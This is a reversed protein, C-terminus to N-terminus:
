KIDLNKIKIYVKMEVFGDKRSDNLYNFVPPFDDPEYGSNIFWGGCLETMFSTIKEASNKFYAVAYKGSPISSKKFPAAVALQSPIEIAADYCCKDEPTITPNDHCIGFRTQQYCDIGSNRGWSTVKDWTRYVSDLEYGKDSSLFAINIEERYEVKVDMLIEELKGSVSAGAKTVFQSYLDQPKFEKGYKSYLKGNKSEKIYKNQFKVKRLESPSMGFYLKFAKSFNASSSFGGIHAIETVTMKSHYALRNVAKEMKKRSVYDNVTEGVIAHFIRHFHFSSFHSTKAIDNLQISRDINSEIFDLALQIRRYYEVQTKNHTPSSIM